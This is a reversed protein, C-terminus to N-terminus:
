NEKKPNSYKPNEPKVNKKLYDIFKKDEKDEKQYYVKDNTKTNLNNIM